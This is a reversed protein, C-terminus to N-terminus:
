HIKVSLILSEESFLEIAVSNCYNHNCVGGTILLKRIKNFVCPWVSSVKCELANILIFVSGTSGVYM